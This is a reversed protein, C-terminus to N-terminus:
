SQPYQALAHHHVKFSITVLLQQFPKSPNVRAALIRVLVLLVLWGIAFNYGSSTLEVLSVSAVVSVSIESTWFGLSTVVLLQGLTVLVTAILAGSRILFQVLV